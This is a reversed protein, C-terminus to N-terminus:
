PSCKFRALLLILLKQLTRVPHLGHAISVGRTTDSDSAVLKVRVAVSFM